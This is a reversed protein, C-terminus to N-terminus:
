TEELRRGGMVFELIEKRRKSGHFSSLVIGCEVPRHRLLLNPHLVHTDPDRSGLASKGKALDNYRLMDGTGSLSM